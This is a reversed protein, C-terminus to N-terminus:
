PSAGAIGVNLENITVASDDSIFGQVCCVRRARVAGLTKVALDRVAPDDFTASVAALGAKM